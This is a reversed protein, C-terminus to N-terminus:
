PFTPETWGQCIQAPTFMEDATRSLRRAKRWMAAYDSVSSFLPAFDKPEVGVNRADQLLDPLLGYHALGDFNFNFTRSGLRDPIVAGSGYQVPDQQAAANFLLPFQTAEESRNADKAGVWCAFRGFRPSTLPHVGFDTALAVGRRGMKEIAYLYQLAFGRSTGACDNPITLTQDSPIDIPDSGVMPGVVGGSARIAELQSRSREFERPLFDKTRTGPVPIDVRPFFNKIPVTGDRHLSQARPTTHSSMIPYGGVENSIAIVDSLALDSMHEVDVLMGHRMLERVYVKGYQTLGAANLHGEVGALQVEGSPLRLIAYEYAPLHTKGLFIFSDLVGSQAPLSGTPLSHIYARAQDADLRYMVCEGRQLALTGQRCGGERVNFWRATWDSGLPTGFIPNFILNRTPRNLYDNVTSYPDQFIAAGGIRNDIAHIATVQRIGINHLWNVEGRATSFGLQGLQDVETGLVVALKGERGVIRQVDAPSYAIEMWDANLGALRRMGCVFARIITRDDTTTVSENPFAGEVPSMGFELGRNHVALATLLRLGGDYARRIQTIHMQQHAGALFSPSYVYDPPGHKGHGLVIVPGPVPLLESVHEVAATIQGAVLSGGGHRSGDCQALDLDVLGPNVAYDAARGGPRGWVTHIGRLGGFAHHIMPHTHLDAFGWLPTRLQHPPRASFRIDDIALHGRSSADVIRLRVDSPRTPPAGFDVRVRTFADTTRRAVIREFLLFRAGPGRRTWVEVSQRPGAAAFRLSLYRAGIRIVPSTLVGRPRDGRNVREGAAGAIYRSSIWGSGEIGIPVPVERWYDGGLRPKAFGAADQLQITAGRVPQRIFAEGM